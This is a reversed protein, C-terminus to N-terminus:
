HKKINKWHRHFNMKKLINECNMPLGGGGDSPFYFLSKAPSFDLNLLWPMCMFTDLLIGFVDPKLKQILPMLLNQAYPQPSGGLITFKLETGDEM